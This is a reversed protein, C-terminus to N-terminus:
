EDRLAIMPDVRAARRAPSLMALGAIVLLAVSGIALINPDGPQIGYLLNALVRSFALTLVVGTGLGAVVPIGGQRAVLLILDHTQAGVAKRVGFEGMRQAVLQSLLGHLGVASLMLAAAAFFALVVARFRSYALTGALRSTLTEVVNIPISPDVSAIQRPIEREILGAGAAVRMAIQMSPRPEQALPRYFIPTEVWSMENMLQTHKLNGVVGVITLWPMPGGPLRIQQGLPDTNPFYGQALAENVLVVPESNDRDQAGFARGRRLPINLVNFFEPSVADAGINHIESGTPTPRGRVELIQNGGADPPVKSALAVGAVGPTQSLQELLRDYVPMRQAGTSYRFAPLSVRTVLVRAPNFGLPESGMRLASTILLGAGMLLLFSLAMEVAILGKTLGFRGPSGGTVTGRGAAKLHQTLDVRSARLAPLLGFVVTTAISLTVSFGLLSPSLKVDAGVALEIPNAIRFYQLAAYALGVGLAAACASLLLAETLVQRVLRSRPSGLAARMAFERRRGSLRALLLNAVNLCAILLVLLVACFVLVLTTRLTRGALFTFEGHLDYVVPELDRAEPGPHGARFLSRLETEAQAPTVGPKLRAFIGVLMKDQNPQFDPGLLVWAQTQSPYFSFAEPMVGLVICPKQDLTVSKGAILPDAGLTSAWLKHAVVLSCGDGEDEAGFTRGMAAPVGLTKFFSASAPITLIERAQGSGTLVRGTTTAWTAAGIEEFAQSHRRFESYDAYTAFVKALTQERTSTIWVAALRDPDKYPLPRLLVADVISFVATAAGIGLALALIAIAAFGRRTAFTRVAFRVDLGADSVWEKMKGEPEKNLVCGGDFQSAIFAWM